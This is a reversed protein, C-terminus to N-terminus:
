TEWQMGLQQLKLCTLFINISNFSVIMNLMNQTIMKQCEIEVELRNKLSAHCVIRLLVYVMSIDERALRIFQQYYVKTIEHEEQKWFELTASYDTEDKLTKFKPFLSKRVLSQQVELRWHIWLVKGANVEQMVCFRITQRCRTRRCEKAMIFVIKKFGTVNVSMTSKPM